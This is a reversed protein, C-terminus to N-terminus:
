RELHAVIAPLLTSNVLARFADRLDPFAWAAKFIDCAAIVAIPGLFGDEEVEGEDESLSGSAAGSAPAFGALALVRGLVGALGALALVRGLVGALGALALV